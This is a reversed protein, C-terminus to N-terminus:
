YLRFFSKGKLMFDIFETYIYGCMISDSAQIRYINITINKNDIIKKIEKPICEVEFSDFSTTIDGNVDFATWHTGISKYQHLYIIYAQDM